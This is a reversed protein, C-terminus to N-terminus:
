GKRLTPKYGPRYRGQYHGEYRQLHEKGPQFGLGGGGAGCVIGDPFILTTPYFISNPYILCHGAM